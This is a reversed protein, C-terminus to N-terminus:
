AVGSINLYGSPTQNLCNNNLLVFGDDCSLCVSPSSCNACGRGLLSCEQCDNFSDIYYYDPCATLCDFNFYYPFAGECSTCNDIQVECTKCKPDCSACAGSVIIMNNPCTLVCNGNHLAAISSCSTCNDIAM